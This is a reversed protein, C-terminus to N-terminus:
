PAPRGSFPLCGFRAIRSVAEPDALADLFRRAEPSLPPKYALAFPISLPYANRGLTEPSPVVGEFALARLPSSVMSPLSFYGIAGPHRAVMAVAEPTSYAVAQGQCPLAAFGPIAENLVARGIEPTERCVRAIPGPPGGLASWDTVAGSFVALATQGTLGAVGTVSPNVAFAVPARAFVPEVLGQATEEPRLPRATRAFVAKGALVEKIGGSSGISDPIRIVIDPNEQMFRAALSRLLEESDGTGAVVLAAKGNQAWARPLGTIVCLALALGATLAALRRARSLARM